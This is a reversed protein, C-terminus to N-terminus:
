ITGIELLYALLSKHFFQKRGDFEGMIELTRINPCMLLVMCMTADPLKKLLAQHLDDQFEATETTGFWYTQAQKQFLAM